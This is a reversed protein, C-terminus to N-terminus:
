ALIHVIYILTCIMTVIGMLYQVVLIAAVEKTDGDSSFFQTLVMISTATPVCSAFMALFRLPRDDPSILHLKFVLAQVLAIGIIPTVVLKVVAFSISIHLPIARIQLHSLAAGLNCLSIPLYAGGITLVVEFLFSLPPESQSPSTKVFLRKLPPALGVTIGLIIAINPPSFIVRIMDVVRHLTTNEREGQPISKGMLSPDVKETETIPQFDSISTYTRTRAMSPRVPAAEYISPLRFSPVSSLASGKRKEYATYTPSSLCSFPKDQSECPAPNNSVPNKTNQEDKPFHQERNTFRKTLRGFKNFKTDAKEISTGDTIQCDASTEEDPDQQKHDSEVLRYGGLTFLSLNFMVIFVCMYTVGVDGDGPRFPATNGLTSMVSLPLDGWNGWISAAIFGNRFRRPLKFTFRYIIGWVAGLIIYFLIVLALIGMQGLNSIQISRVLNGFLLCPLLFNVIIKSLAKASNQNLVGTRALVVGLGTNLVLKLIPKASVWVIDLISATM